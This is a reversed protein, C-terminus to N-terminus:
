LDSVCSVYGAYSPGSSGALGYYLNVDYYSSSIPTESWYNNYTPWGRAIFMNGYVDHLEMKLEDKTALRWNTRGGISHTNYAACLANANDWNFKYFDGAPGNDGIETLTGDTAIGGISDLYAVSPSSTFLKGNGTDFVDICPGALDGCVTIDLVNSTIGDKTAILEITGGEIGTLLGSSSVRAVTPDGVIEWDSSTTVDGEHGDHYKASAVFQQREGKLVMVSSSVLKASGELQPKITLEYIDAERPGQPAVEPNPNPSQTPLGSNEGNCGSLLAIFSLTAIYKKM